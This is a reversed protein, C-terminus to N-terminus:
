SRLGLAAAVREVTVGALRVTKEARAHGSVITVGRLPVGVAGALLSRLSENARGDEPPAALRVKLRDGLLGAIGDSRAGPVVKVSLVADSGDARLCPWIVDM